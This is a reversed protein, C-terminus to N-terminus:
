AGPPTPTRLGSLHAFLEGQLDAYRPNATDYAIGQRRLEDGRERRREAGIRPGPGDHHSGVAPRGPVHHLMGYKRTEQADAARRHVDPDQRDRRQLQVKAFGSREAADAQGCAMIGDLPIRQLEESGVADQETGMFGGLQRVQVM